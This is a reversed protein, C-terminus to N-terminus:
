RIYQSIPLLRNHTEVSERLPDSFLCPWNFGVVHVLTRECAVLIHSTLCSSALFVPSPQFAVEGISSCTDIALFDGVVKPKGYSKKKHSNFSIPSEVHFMFLNSDEWIQDPLTLDPQCWLFWEGATEFLWYPETGNWTNWYDWVYLYWTNCLGIHTLRLDLTVLNECM